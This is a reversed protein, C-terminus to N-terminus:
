IAISHACAGLSGHMRAVWLEVELEVEFARDRKKM